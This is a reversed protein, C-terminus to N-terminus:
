AGKRSPPSASSVALQNVVAVLQAMSSLLADVRPDDPRAVEPKTVADALNRQLQAMIMEEMSRGAMPDIGLPLSRTPDLSAGPRAKRYAEMAARAETDLPELHPGPIFDAPLDVETGAGLLEYVPARVAYARASASDGGGLELRVIEPSRPLYAGAESIIRYKAM